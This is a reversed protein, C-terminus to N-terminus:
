SKLKVKKEGAAHLPELLAEPQVLAPDYSVTFEDQGPEIDVELVGPVNALANRVTRVCGSCATTGLLYTAVKAGEVNAAPAAAPTPTPTKSAETESTCSALLAGAFLLAVFRPLMGANCAVGCSSDLLLVWAADPRASARVSSARFDRVLM